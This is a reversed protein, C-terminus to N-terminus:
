TSWNTHKLAGWVLDCTVQFTWKERAAPEMDVPVGLPHTFHCFSNFDGCAHCLTSGLVASLDTLHALLQKPHLLQSFVRWWWLLDPEKHQVCCHPPPIFSLVHMSKYNLCVTNHLKRVFWLTSTICVRCGYVRVHVRVSNWGRAVQVCFHLLVLVCAGMCVGMCACMCECEFV